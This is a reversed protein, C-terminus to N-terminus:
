SGKADRGEERAIAADFEALQRRYGQLVAETTMPDGSILAGRELPKILASLEERQRRLDRLLFDDDMSPHYASAAGPAM